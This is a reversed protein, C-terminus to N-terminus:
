GALAHRVVDLVPVAGSDIDPLSVWAVADTTGDIEAVRPECAPDVEAAFILHIGHFDELRGNPANGTFHVDHVDLLPGVRCKVGCEEGVERALACAPSEGHDVGGGPLTWFGANFGLPSIRTLLVADDRRIVAYAALRQRQLPAADALAETVMPVVPVAGSHVDALDIWTSEVTSGDVEIVRPEPSDVPVWGSYVIRLAHANIREGHRWVSRLHASYVRATDSVEARLGSEEYVERRVGDRPDEGHNLGGGPLTWLEDKTVRTSLRSLLVSDDRIIVAYAAVRQRKPLGGM